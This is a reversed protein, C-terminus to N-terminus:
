GVLYLLVVIFLGYISIINIFGEGDDFMVQFMYEVVSLGVFFYFGIVFEVIDGKMFLDIDLGMFFEENEGVMFDFIGVM